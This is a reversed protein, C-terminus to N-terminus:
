VTSYQVTNQQSRLVFEGKKQKHREPTLFQQKSSLLKFREQPRFCKIIIKPIMNM